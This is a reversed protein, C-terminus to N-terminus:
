AQELRGGGANWGAQAYHVQLALHEILRHYQEWTITLEGRTHDVLPPAQTM